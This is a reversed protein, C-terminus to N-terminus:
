EYGRRGGNPAHDEGLASVPSSSAPATPSPRGEKFVCRRLEDACTEQPVPILGVGCIFVFVCLPWPSSLASAAAILSRRVGRM